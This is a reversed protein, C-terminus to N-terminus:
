FFAHAIGETSSFTKGEYHLVETTSTNKVSRQQKVLKYFVQTDSEKANMLDTFKDQTQLYTQQRKTQRM